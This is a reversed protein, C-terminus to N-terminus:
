KLPKGDIDLEIVDGYGLDALGKGVKAKDGVVLIAFQDPLVYKQALAKLEDPQLKALKALRQAGYDDPWGYRTVNDIYM